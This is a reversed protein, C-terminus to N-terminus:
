PSLATRLASVLKEYGDAEFLDVWQWRRLRDPVTCEDLRAPIIFIAGEPQEDAVDLAKRIEKQVYGRKPVSSSSLCVIIAAAERVARSIERDWDHGPLLQEEDLWPYFGDELLRDRLQKVQPKDESGHCIFVTQQSANESESGRDPGPEQNPGTAALESEYQRVLEPLATYGHRGTSEWLFGTDPFAAQHLDAVEVGLRQAEWRSLVAIRLKHKWSWYIRGKVYTAIEADDVLQPKFVDFLYSDVPVTLTYETGSPRLPIENEDLFKGLAMLLIEPLAEDFDEPWRLQQQPLDWMHRFTGSIFFRGYCPEERPRLQFVADVYFGSNHQASYRDDQLGRVLVARRGDRSAAIDPFQVM